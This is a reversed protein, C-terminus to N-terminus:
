QKPRFIGYGSSKKGGVGWQTLGAQLLAAAVATWEPAGEIVFYFSGQVAIQPAPTPSDMDSDPGKGEQYYESHHPTVIEAVFPPQQNGDCWWADHYYVGGGEGTDGGEGFLWTIAARSINGSQQEIYEASARALGKVASGPIIPMGYSHAVTVGTEVPNDRTLGIYLRQQLALTFGISNM